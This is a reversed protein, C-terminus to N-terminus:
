PAMASGLTSGGIQLLQLFEVSGVIGLELTGDETVVEGVRELLALQGRSQTGSARNIHKLQVERDAHGDRRSPLNRMPQPWAKSMETDGTPLIVGPGPYADIFTSCIWTVFQGIGEQVASFSTMGEYAPM